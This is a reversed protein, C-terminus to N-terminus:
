HIAGEGNLNEFSVGVSFEQSAWRREAIQHLIMMIRISLEYSTPGAAKATKGIITRQLARHACRVNGTHMGTHTSVYERPCRM